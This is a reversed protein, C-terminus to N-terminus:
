GCSASSRSQGCAITALLHSACTSCAYRTGVLGAGIPRPKMTWSMGTSGSWSTFVVETNLKHTAAFNARSPIGVRGFKWVM